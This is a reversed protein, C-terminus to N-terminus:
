LVLECFFDIFRWVRVVMVVSMKVNVRMEFCVLLLIIVGGMNKVLVFRRSLLVFSDSSWRLILVVFICSSVFVVSIKMRKMLVVFILGLWNFCFYERGNCRRVSFMGSCIVSLVVSVFISKGFSEYYWVLRILEIRVGVFVVSLWVIMVFLLIGWDSCCVSFMLFLRLLLM